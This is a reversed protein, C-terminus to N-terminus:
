MILSILFDITQQVEKVKEMNSITVPKIRIRCGGEPVISEIIFNYELVEFVKHPRIYKSYIIENIKFKINLKELSKQIIGDLEDMSKNYHKVCSESSQKQLKKFRYYLPIVMNFSLGLGTAMLIKSFDTNVAYLYIFIILTTVNVSIVSTKIISTEGYSLAEPYWCSYYYNRIRKGYKMFPIFFVIPFIMFPLTIFESQMQLSLILGMASVLFIIPIIVNLMSNKANQLEILESVQKDNIGIM